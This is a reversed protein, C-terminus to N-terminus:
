KLEGARISVWSAAFRGTSKCGSESAVRALITTDIDVAPCTRDRVIGEIDPVAPHGRDIAVLGTFRGRYSAALDWALEAGAKDGVLLGGAIGVQDLFRVISKATLGPYAPIAVTRFMAVHLRERLTDCAASRDTPKDILVVTRGELPGSLTVETMTGDVATVYRISTHYGPPADIM